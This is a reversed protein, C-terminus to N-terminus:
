NNSKRRNNGSLSSLKDLSSNRQNEDEYGELELLLSPYIHLHNNNEVICINEM